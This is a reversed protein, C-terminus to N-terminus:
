WRRGGYQHKSHFLLNLLIVTISVLCLYVFIDGYRTYFTVRGDRDIEATVATKEFLGTKKIVRGRSDVFGSIGTNAARVVPKRNEVARFVSTYFHQVPGITSGFWADNTITVIFDGGKLFFNRVLSPFILEYCIVTSFTGFSTKASTYARGPVYDGVAGEVLRNVFFLANKLPVYEGFPVLHIKDYSYMVKGYSDMLVASNSYVRSGDKHERARITGTLLPVGNEKQFAMLRGTHERDHGFIFPLATEPWVILDPKQRSVIKSMEMYTSLVSDQYQRDWKMDQDINGQIISIRVPRSPMKEGLRHYGYSITVVAIIIVSVTGLWVPVTPYLPIHRRRRELLMFDALVANAAIVIFSIGYIGTIDAIQILPLSRYQSYGLLSWPFGTLIFGRAYELCVWLTSATLVLPLATRKSVYNLVLAFIGTYLSEYLCLLFVVAVSAPLNLHGYHNISYYIWYQTGFFYPLGFLVGATFADSRPSEAVLFLFPAISFWALFSIDRGPFAFSLALGCIFSVAYLPTFLGQLALRNRPISSM